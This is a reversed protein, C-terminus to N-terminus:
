CLSVADYRENMFNFRGNESQYVICSSEFYMSFSSVVPCGELAFFRGAKSSLSSRLMAVDKGDDLLQVLPHSSSVSYGGVTALAASSLCSLLYRAERRSTREATSSIVSGGTLLIRRMTWEQHKRLKTMGQSSVLHVKGNGDEVGKIIANVSSWEGYAILECGNLAAELASVYLEKQGYVSGISFAALLVASSPLNGRYIMPVGYTLAFSAGSMLESYVAEAEEKEYLSRIGNMKM